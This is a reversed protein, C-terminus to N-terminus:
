RIELISQLQKQQALSMPKRAKFNLPQPTASVIVSPTLITLCDLTFTISELFVFDRIKTITNENVNLPKEFVIPGSDYDNDMLHMTLVIESGEFLAWEVAMAGRYSPLKGPHINLVLLNEMTTFVLKRPTGINVFYDVELERQLDLLQAELHEQVVHEVSGHYKFTSQFDFDRAFIRYFDHRENTISLDKDSLLKTDYVMVSEFGSQRAIRDHWISNLPNNQTTLFGFKMKGSNKM